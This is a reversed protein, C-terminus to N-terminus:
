WGNGNCKNCDAGKDSLMQVIETHGGICAYTLPYEDFRDCTNCGVGKDVMIQLMETIGHECVFLISSLGNDDCDARNDLLFEVIEIHGRMFAKMVPSCDSYINCDAGKDFLMKVIETHGNECTKMAPSETRPDVNNCEAGRDLLMKVIEVHGHEGAKKLPLENYNNCKNVEDDFKCCCQTFSIDGTLCCKILVTDGNNKIGNCKEYTQSLQRQYSIDLTKLQFLFNQRFRSIKMNINSFVCQVHGKSWDDVLRQIYMQHYKPPIIIIFQDVGNDRELVFIEKIFGCDANKILCNIMEQGCFYALFDFIKEHIIKYM